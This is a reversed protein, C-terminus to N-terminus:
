RKKKSKSKRSKVRSVNVNSQGTPVKEKNFERTTGDKLQIKSISAVDISFPEESDYQEFEVSKEGLVKIKVVLECEDKLYIIDQFSDDHLNPIINGMAILPCCVAVIQLIIFSIKKKVKM